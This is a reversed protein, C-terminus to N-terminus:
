HCTCFFFAKVFKLIKDENSKLGSRSNVPLVLFAIIKLKLAKGSLKQGQNLTHNYLNDEFMLYYILVIYQINNLAICTMTHKLSDITTYSYINAIAAM